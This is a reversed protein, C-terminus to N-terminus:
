RSRRDWRTNEWGHIIGNDGCQPCHWVIAHREDAKGAIIEGRCRRRGRRRRCWVNTRQNRGNTRSVWGVIAGLYVALNMAPGPMRELEGQDDPFHRMDTVWTKSM